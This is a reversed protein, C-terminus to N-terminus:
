IKFSNNNLETLGRTMVSLVFAKTINVRPSQLFEISCTTVYM